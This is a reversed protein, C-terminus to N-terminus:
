VSDLDPDDHAKELTAYVKLAIFHTHTHTQFHNQLSHLKPSFLKAIGLKYTTNENESTHAPQYTELSASDVGPLLYVQQSLKSM